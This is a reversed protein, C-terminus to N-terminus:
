AFSDPELTTTAGLMKITKNIKSEKLQLLKAYEKFALTISLAMKRSTENKSCLFSYCESVVRSEKEKM